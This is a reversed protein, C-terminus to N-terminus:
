LLISSMAAIAVVSTEALCDTWSAPEIQTLKGSKELLHEASLM